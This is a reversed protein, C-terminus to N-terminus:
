PLQTATSSIRPAAATATTACSIILTTRCSFRTCRLTAGLPNVTTDCVQETTDVAYVEGHTEGTLSGNITPTTYLAPVLSGTVPATNGGSTWVAGVGGLGSSIKVAQADLTSPCPETTSSTWWNSSTPGITAAGTAFTGTGCHGATIMFPQHSDNWVNWVGTCTTTGRTIRDGDFFPATDSNRSAAVSAAREQGLTVSSGFMQQIVSKAITSYNDATVSRGSATALASMSSASPEGFNVSVTGISPEPIAQTVDIGDGMLQPDKATVSATLADLQNYSRSVNVFSVPYGSTNLCNVAAVLAPNSPSTLYVDTAGTLDAQPVAIRFPRIEEDSTM